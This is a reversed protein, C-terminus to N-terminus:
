KQRFFRIMGLGLIYIIIPFWYMNWHIASIASETQIQDAIYGGKNLVVSSLIGAGAIGLKMACMMISTMIGQPRKGTIEEVEDVTDSCITFATACALTSGIGSIITFVVLLVLNNGSMAMFISAIVYTLFGCYLNNKNGLKILINATFPATIIQAVTMLTLLITAWNEMGLCYKAFYICSQGRLTNAMFSLFSIICLIIWSRSPVACKISEKFKINEQEAGVREKCVIACNM